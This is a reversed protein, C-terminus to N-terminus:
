LLHITKLLEFNTLIDTFSVHSIRNDFLKFASSTQNINVINYILVIIIYKCNIEFNLM